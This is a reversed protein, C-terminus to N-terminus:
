PKVPRIKGICRETTKIDWTNWMPNPFTLRLIYIKNSGVKTLSSSLYVNSNKAGSAGYIDSPIYITNGSLGIVRFGKFGDQEWKCKNILERIESSTPMRWPLGLNVSAADDDPLLSTLGDESNYKTYQGDNLYKDGIATDLPEANGWYYSSGYDEPSNAGLNCSAWKVSLGLDVAELSKSSTDIKSTTFSKIKSYFVDNGIIAYARYYYTRNPVLNEIKQM